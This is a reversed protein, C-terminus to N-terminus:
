AEKSAREIIVTSFPRVNGYRHDHDINPFSRYVLDLTRLTIEQIYRDIMDMKWRSEPSCQLLNARPVNRIDDAGRNRRYYPFIRDWRLNEANLLPIDDLLREEIVDVGNHRPAVILISAMVLRQQM